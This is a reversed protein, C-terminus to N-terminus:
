TRVYLGPADELPAYGRSINGLSPASVRKGAHQRLWAEWAPWWSGDTTPVEAQWAHPDVYRDNAARGAIQYGRKVGPGPPNVIGVNHGGTTLCFTVDTDTLLYIKYVSHWPSVTDRQTGLCFVPVRIDSLAIPKGAVRYRGEALDNHSYLSHLYDSHQHFPMRTVDANWAMLDTLPKRRGMLYDHVMRSFVLDRQNLLTFAGAMQTGDLYGQVSMMDELYALQSDDIFLGLEGPETFDVLSALLTLSQLRDDNDRAMAAAAIALLTGGLCYGVAQIRRKPVIAAVADVAAMVGEALYDEMGVDRDGAGPNRWSLIFVSHGQEVLYEVLSNGPSLDLIYFKMIWSPVILVPDAFVSQTQPRYQILEILHNRFVVKGPTLAVEQGPRFRESGAVPRNAALRAADEMWNQAGQLLNAGGRAFTEQLVEPNSWLFNSPSFLDLWQRGTFDVLHEHHHTVGRVGTTANHWWQQQLLFAQYILNYPWSQWQPASFRKDQPLPEICPECPQVGNHWAHAALRLGKRAAKGILEGQKGPAVMLHVLWDTYAAALSAPSLGFTLKALQARIARDLDHAPAEEATEPVRPRQTTVAVPAPANQARDRLALRLSSSTTM